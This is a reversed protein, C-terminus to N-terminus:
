HQGQYFIMRVRGNRSAVVAIHTHDISVKQSDLQSATYERTAQDYGNKDTPKLVTAGSRKRIKCAEPAGAIIDNMFGMTLSEDDEPDFVVPGDNGEIVSVDGYARPYETWSIEVWTGLNHVNGDFNIDAGRVIRGNFIPCARLLDVFVTTNSTVKLAMYPKQDASNQYAMFWQSGGDTYKTELLIGPQGNDPDGTFPDYRQTYNNGYPDGCIANPSLPALPVVATAALGLCLLLFPIM